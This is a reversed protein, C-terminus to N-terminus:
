FNQLVDSEHIFIGNKGEKAFSLMARAVKGAEVGKYRAPILFGLVKYVSKAADEGSRKEPRDGLLLSPRFIHVTDFGAHSIGEEVQGKVQNYFISSTKNAGMASVLLYQKAGLALASHALAVPYDYDVARFNEKSKAKAITTGLCCFVDECKRVPINSLDKGDFIIQELKSHEAVPRRVLAIVRGYSNDNLLLQLLKSGILGTAGAILATKMHAEGAFSGM